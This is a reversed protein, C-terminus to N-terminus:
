RWRWVNRMMMAMVMMGGCSGSHPACVRQACEACWVVRQSNDLGGM